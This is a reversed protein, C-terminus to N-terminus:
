PLPEAIVRLIEAGTPTRAGAVWAASRVALRHISEARAERAELMLEAPILLAVLLTAAALVPRRWGAIVGIPDRARDERAELAADLGTRTAQVISEWRAREPELASFDIPDHDTM